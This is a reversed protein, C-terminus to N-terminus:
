SSCTVISIAKLLETYTKFRNKRVRSCGSDKSNRKQLILVNEYFRIKGADSTVQEKAIWGTNQTLVVSVEGPLQTTKDRSGRHQRMITMRM